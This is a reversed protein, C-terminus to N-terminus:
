PLAPPGSATAMGSTWTYGYAPGPGCVVGRTVEGADTAQGGHGLYQFLWNYYFVSTRNQAALFYGENDGYSGLLSM